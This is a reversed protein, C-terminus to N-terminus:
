HARDRRSLIFAAFTAWATTDVPCRQARCWAVLEDVSITVKVIEAGQARLANFRQGAIQEFEAFTDPLAARDAAVALLKPWDEATFWPVGFGRLDEPDM